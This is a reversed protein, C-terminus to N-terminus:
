RWRGRCRRTTTDGAPCPSRVPRRASRPSSGAVRRRLTWLGAGRRPRRDRDAEPEEGGGEDGVAGGLRHEPVPAGRQEDVVPDRGGSRGVCEGREPRRDGDAAEDDGEDRITDARGVDVDHERPDDGHSQEDSRGCVGRGAPDGQEGEGAEGAGPEERHRDAVALRRERAHDLQRGAPEDRCVLDPVSEGGETPARELVGDGQGRDEADGRDEDHEHPQQESGMAREARGGGVWLSTARNVGDPRHHM